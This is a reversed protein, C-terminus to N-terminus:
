VLYSKYGESQQSFSIKMVADVEIKFIVSKTPKWIMRTDAKYEPVRAINGGFYNWDWRRLIGIYSDQLSPM